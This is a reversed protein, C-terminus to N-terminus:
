PAPRNVVAEYEQGDGETHVPVLFLSFSGLGPHDVAYTGQPIPPPSGTFLLTFSEWGPQRDFTTVHGLTLTVPDPGAGGVSFGTGAARQLSALAPLAEVSARQGEVM